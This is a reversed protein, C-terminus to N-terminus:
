NGSQDTLSKKLYYSAGTNKLVTAVKKQFQSWDVGAEQKEHYNIKGVKWHDVVNQLREIVELAQDPYIVPELSVWTRIKKSHALSIAEFRDAISAAHPEWYDADKQKIFVLTSGFSAKEYGELLDFDRAARMGGKTLLTFRLNHRKLIQIANHTINKTIEIPQYPDTEFSMMIERDDGVLSSADQELLELINEVPRICSGFDDHNRGVVKPAYCYLCGHSCGHYLNVALPAYEQAKGKSKYIVQMSEKKKRNQSYTLFITVSLQSEQFSIFLFLSFRSTFRKCLHLIYFAKLTQLYSLKPSFPCKQSITLFAGSIM